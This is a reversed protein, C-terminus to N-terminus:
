KKAEQDLYELDLEFMKDPNLFESKPMQELAESVKRTIGDIEKDDENVGKIGQGAIEIKMMDDVSPRGTQKIPAGGVQIPERTQIQDGICGTLAFLATAALVTVPRYFSGAMEYMGKGVNKISQYM